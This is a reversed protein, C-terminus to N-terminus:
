RLFQDFGKPSAPKPTREKFGLRTLGINALGAIGVILYLALYPTNFRPIVDFFSLILLNYFIYVGGMWILINFKNNKSLLFSIVGTIFTSYIALYIVARVSRTLLPSVPPYLHEIFVMKGMEIINGFLYHGLNNKIRELSEKKLETESKGQNLLIGYQETLFWPGYEELLKDEYQGGNARDKLWSNFYNVQQRYSLTARISRTYLHLNQRGGTINFLGTHYYTYTMWSLLITITMLIYTAVYKLPKKKLYFIVAIIFPLFIFHSKTLTLVSFIIGLIIYYKLSKNNKIIDVVLLLSTILLFIILPESQILNIQYSYLPMFAVLSAVVIALPGTKFINFIKFIFFTTIALLILQVIKVALFNNIGFLSYISAVFFPYVPERYASFVKDVPDMTYGNGLAINQAYANYQQSDGTPLTYDNLGFLLFSLSTILLILVFINIKKDLWSTLQFTM